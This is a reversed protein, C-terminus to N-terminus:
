IETTLSEKWLLTLDLLFAPKFPFCPTIYMLGSPPPPSFGFETETIQIKKEPPSCHGEVASELATERECIAKREMATEMKLDVM